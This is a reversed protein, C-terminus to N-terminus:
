GPGGSLHDCFLTTNCTKQVELTDKRGTLGTVCPYIETKKQVKMNLWEEVCRDCMQWGCM